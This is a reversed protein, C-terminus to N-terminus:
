WPATPELSQALPQFLELTGKANNSLQRCVWQERSEEDSDVPLKAGIAALQVNHALTIAAVLESLNNLLTKRLGPHFHAIQDAM